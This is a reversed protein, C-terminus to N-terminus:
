MPPSVREDVSGRSGREFRSSPTMMSTYPHRRAWPLRACARALHRYLGFMASHRGNAWALLHELLGILAGYEKVVLKRTTILERLAMLARALKGLPVVTVGLEPLHILGLWTARTGIAHKAAIAMTLNMHRTLWRWVRLLRIARDAGIALFTPDDTYM